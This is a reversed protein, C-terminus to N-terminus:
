TVIGAIKGKLGNATVTTIAAIAIFQAYLKGGKVKAALGYASRTAQENSVFALWHSSEVVLIGVYNEMEANTPAFPAGDGVDVFDENFLVLGIRGALKDKNTLVLSQIIAVPGHRGSMVPNPVDLIMRNGIVDNAAKLEASITPNLDQALPTSVHPIM